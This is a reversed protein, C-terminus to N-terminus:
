LMRHNTNKHPNCVRGFAYVITTTTAEKNIVTAQTREVSDTGSRTERLVVGCFFFTKFLEFVAEKLSPIVSKIHSHVLENPLTARNQCLAIM